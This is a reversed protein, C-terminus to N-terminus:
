HVTTSTWDFDYGKPMERLARKREQKGLYMRQDAVTLLAEAHNGDDPFRSQGISLGCLAPGAKTADSYSRTSRGPWAGDYPSNSLLPAPSGAAAQRSVEEVIQSLQAIKFHLDDDNLGPLLIVFEDGGLRAVYDYERVSQRLAGAIARLLSNGALHGFRDNVLKFGDLDCVLVGLTGGLRRCRAIESDLRAHLARANPLGTLFDTTASTTAQEYQLANEIFGGLKPSVSLLLRLDDRRFRDRGARGLLLVGALDEVGDLPVALASCHKSPEAAGAARDAELALDGNLIPEHNEAVWGALGERFAVERGQLRAVPDGWALQAHLKTERNVYIVVADFAVIRKLRRALMPLMQNLPLSPSLDQTVELLDKTERGAAAISSAFGTDFAASNVPCTKSSNGPTTTAAPHGGQGQEVIRKEFEEHRSEIIRVVQPDFSVGSQAKLAELAGAFPIAKRYPRDSILVDLCDVAALIRAGVPIAEGKLGDPYGCGNWKEHHHRVLPAVAYPFHVRELIEAGVVPHIKIKEFEERTLRGPKSLIHEPVALKGVDHLLAAAGLAGLEDERMGMERGIEVSYIRLRPLHLPGTQDKAEIALALAEITRHHLAAMRELHAKQASLRGLYFHLGSYAVFAATLLLLISAWGFSGGIGRFTIAFAAAALYYPFAWFNGEQWASSLRRGQGLATVVAVPITNMVYLVTAAMLLQLLEPFQGAKCVNQVANCLVIALSVTAIHFFAPVGTKRRRSDLATQVWASASGLVLTEEISMELLGLLVLIYNASITYPAQPIRIRLSAAVLSLLLYVYFRAPDRSDLTTLGAVLQTMGLAIVIGVFVRLLTPSPQRVPINRGGPSGTAHDVWHM